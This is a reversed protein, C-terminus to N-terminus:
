FGHLGQRAREIRGTVIHRYPLVRVLEEITTLGASVKDLGDDLMTTFGHSHAHQRLENRTAGDAIMDQLSEDAILLEFIGLRGKYGTGYCKDCGRGEFFRIGDFLEGFLTAQRDTPLTPQICHPCVRRVLRQGMVGLIAGAIDPDELGLTRLRLVAGLADATHLTSMVVHGTASATIANDGTEKDRIEGFLLVDPDQRMLARTLSAMSMLETVEKQNIKDIYYEIPDEATIIKRSTDRMHTLAAYLTTTKGSGTPGTVLVLGEPNALLQILTQQIHAPMGLQELPMLGINADLVRIVVDEGAPSPVISLRFDITERENGHVFVVRVRGDQPRRKETIDLEAMVKLRSIIEAINAPSMHTFVQHLIGDVRLRLDVDHFYTEIHIDSAKREVAMHLITNVVRRPPTDPELERLPLHVMHEESGSPRGQEYDLARSIEYRNLQIPEIQKALRRSIDSVLTENHPELMGVTIVDDSNLDVKGLVVVHNHRCYTNPLLAISRPDLEFQTLDRFNEFSSHNSM